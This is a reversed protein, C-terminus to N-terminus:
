ELPDDRFATALEVFPKQAELWLPDQRIENMSKAINNCFLYAGPGLRLFADYLAGEANPAFEFDGVAMKRGEIEVQLPAIDTKFRRQYSDTRPGQYALIAGESRALKVLIWEDFLPKQYIANMRGLALIVATRADALNM